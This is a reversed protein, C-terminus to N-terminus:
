QAPAEPPTIAPKAMKTKIVPKPINHGYTQRLARVIREEKKWDKNDPALARAEATLDAARSFDQMKMASLMAAKLLDLEQQQAWHARMPEALLSEYIMTEQQYKGNENYLSATKMQAEYYNQAVDPYIWKPEQPRSACASLM